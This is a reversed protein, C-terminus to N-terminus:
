RGGRGERAEARAAPLRRHAVEGLPRAARRHPFRQLDDPGHTAAGEVPPMASFARRDSPSRRASEHALLWQKRGLGGAYGTLCGDAGIVRHCPIVIAVPNSRNAAGVARAAGPAGVARALEGYSATRGPPIQRLANWVRRQFPTGELDVPIRALAAIDGAFYRELRTVLGAPDAAARLEVRPFRRGLAARRRPWSEAFDLAWLRGARVAPRRRAAAGQIAVAARLAAAPSDFVAMLGDGLRKVIRGDHARLAPLVLADHRRLLRLAAGNGALAAHVTFGELDTFMFALRTGRRPVVPFLGALWDIVAVDDNPRM